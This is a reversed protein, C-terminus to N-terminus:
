SDIQHQEFIHLIYQIYETLWLSYDNVILRVVFLCYIYNNEGYFFDNVFM